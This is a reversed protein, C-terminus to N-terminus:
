ARELIPREAPPVAVGLGMFSAATEAARSTSPAGARRRVGDVQERLEAAEHDPIKDLTDRVVWARNGDDDAAARAAEDRLFAVVADGDLAALSRLAWSLAKQVDADADGILDRVLGIGHNVVQGAITGRRADHALVAITSGVLRREWRSPSYVLQELEAWRYPEAVIGRAAVHALTDITIWDGAATAARRVLQWTREPDDDITRELLGFALWRLELVHERLLTGALDLLTSSRDRRTAARLGSGVAQLLPQRVGLIPGIGPAIMLQGERYEDDALAELGARLSDLLAPTDGILDGAARGLAVARPRREAVLARARETVPSVNGPTM